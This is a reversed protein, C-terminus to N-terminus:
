SQLLEQRRVGVFALGLLGVLMLAVTGPEPTVVSQIFGGGTSSRSTRQVLEISIEQGVGVSFMGKSLTPEAWAQDGTWSSPWSTGDDAAASTQGLSTGDAFIEFVDGVICCDVVLLTTTTATFTESVTGESDWLFTFWTDPTLSTQAEAQLPLMLAGVLAMGALLKRM